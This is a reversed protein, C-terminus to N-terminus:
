PCSRPTAASGTAFATDSRGRPRRGRPGTVRFAYNTWPMDGDVFSFVAHGQGLLLPLEAGDRWSRPGQGGLVAACPSRHGWSRSAERDSAGVLTWRAEPNARVFRAMPQVQRPAAQCGRALASRAKPCASVFRSMTRAQRPAPRLAQSLRAVLGQARSFSALRRELRGRPQAFRRRRANSPASSCRRSPRTTSSVGGRATVARKLRAELRRVDEPCLRRVREYNAAAGGPLKRRGRSPANDLGRQHPYPVM